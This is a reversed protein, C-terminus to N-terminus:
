AAPRSQVRRFPSHVNSLRLMIGFLALGAVLHGVKINFVLYNIFMVGFLMFYTAMLWYGSRLKFLALLSGFTLVVGMVASWGLYTSMTLPIIARKSLAPFGPTLADVIAIGIETDTWGNVQGVAQVGGFMRFGGYVLFALVILYYGLNALLRKKVM